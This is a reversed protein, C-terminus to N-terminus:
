GPVGVDDGCRAGAEVFDEGGFGVAVGLVVRVDASHQAGVVGFVAAAEWGPERGIRFCGWGWWWM